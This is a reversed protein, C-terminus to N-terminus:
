LGVTVVERYLCLQWVLINDPFTYDSLTMQLGLSIFHVIQLLFPQMQLIVASTFLTALEKDPHGKTYVQLFLKIM